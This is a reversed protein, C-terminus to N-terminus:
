STVRDALISFRLPSLAARVTSRLPPARIGVKTTLAAGIPVNFRGAIRESSRRASFATRNFLPCLSVALILTYLESFALVTVDQVVRDPTAKWRAVAMRGARM